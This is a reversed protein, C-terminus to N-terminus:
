LYPFTLFCLNISNGTGSRQFHNEVNGWFIEGRLFIGFYGVRDGTIAATWKMVELYLGSPVGAPQKFERLPLVVMSWVKMCHGWAEAVTAKGGTAKCAV